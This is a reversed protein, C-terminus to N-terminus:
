GLVQTVAKFNEVNAANKGKAGAKAFLTLVRPVDAFWVIQADAGLKKVSSVYADSAALSNESRGSANAVLDKVTATDTGIGFQSQRFAERLAAANKVKAFFVTSDPLVKEPPAPTAARGHAAALSLGALGLWGTFALRLAARMPTRM